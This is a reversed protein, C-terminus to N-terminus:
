QAVLKTTYELKVTGDGSIRQTTIDSPSIPQDPIASSYLIGGDHRAVFHIGSIIQMAEAEIHYTGSGNYSVTFDQSATNSRSVKFQCNIKHNVIGNLMPNILWLSMWNAAFDEISHVEFPYSTEIDFSGTGELGNEAMQGVIDNGILINGLNDVKIFDHEKFFKEVEIQTRVNDYGTGNIYIPAFSDSDREPDFNPDTPLIGWSCPEPGMGFGWDIEGELKTWCQVYPPEYTLELEVLEPAEVEYGEKDLDVYIFLKGKGEPITFDFRKHEVNGPSVLSLKCPIKNRILAYESFFGINGEGRDNLTCQWFKKDQVSDPVESFRVTWGAYQSKEGEQCGSDKLRVSVKTNMQTALQRAAKQFNKAAKVELDDKIAQFVDPIVKSCLEAYFEESITKQTYEDPYMYSTMSTVDKEAMCYDYITKNDMWFWESYNRLVQEIYTMLRDHTWGKDFAPRFVEYWDKESRYPKQGNNFKTQADRGIVNCEESYYYRYAKRFLNVKAEQVTTGLKDLAVGIFASLGMSASMINTGIASAMKGVTAAMIVKLTNAAVGVDDGNVAAGVVDLCTVATGLNGMINFIDGLFESEFGLATLLTYGGDIGVTQWFGVDDKWARIAQAEPDDSSAIYLMKDLATNLDQYLIYGDFDTRLLAAHTKDNVVSFVEFMSLHDTMIVAEQRDEDYRFYVPEWEGNENLYAARITEGERREIPITIRAVGCLEHEGTSLSLDIAQGRVFGETPQPTLVSNRICLQVNGAIATPSFEVTCKQGEATLTSDNLDIIEANEYVFGPVFTISDVLVASTSLDDQGMRTVIVNEDETHLDKVTSVNMAVDQLGNVSRHVVMRYERGQPPLPDYPQDGRIGGARRFRRWGPANRYLEETGKPVHLTPELYYNDEFIKDNFTSDSIVPPVVSLCTLSNLRECNIFAGEMEVVTNPITVQFENQQVSHISGPALKILNETFEEGTGMRYDGLYVGSWTVGTPYDRTYHQSLTAVVCSGDKNLLVKSYPRVPHHISFYPNGEDVVFGQATVIGNFSTPSIRKLSSPIHIVSVTWYYTKGNVTYPFDEKPFICGYFAESGIEQLKAFRPTGHFERGQGCFSRYGLKTICDLWAVDGGYTGTGAGMLFAEDDVEFAPSRSIVTSLGCMQFAKKGIRKISAGITLHMIRTLQFAEDPVEEMKDGIVLTDITSYIFTYPDITKVNGGITIKSFSGKSYFANRRIRTVVYSNGEEDTVTEPINVVAGDVGRKTYQVIQAEGNKLLAYEIDNIVANKADLPQVGTFIISNRNFSNLLANKYYGDCSGGWGYNFHFYNNSTYGDCVLAHPDGNGYPSGSYLVPRLQDLEVKLQSQLESAIDAKLEKIDPNYNFNNVLPEYVFPTPSGDPKYTTRFAKGIDAMLFAVAEAQQANYGGGYNDLMNDWDYVHGSFDEGTFTGVSDMLRGVSQKPWKWYNMVQALATPYCGTPCGAPCLANYPASQSWTTTLLPGVVISGLYAAAKKPAKSALAPNQRLQDISESYDQLLDKLQIPADDYNFSGHDCYGAVETDTGSEGSIIVFGQDNGYNIIYLNDKGVAVKSKVTHAIVPTSMVAPARRQGQLKRITQTGAFQQATMVAQQPSVDDAFLNSTFFLASLVVCVRHLGCTVRQSLIPIAKM